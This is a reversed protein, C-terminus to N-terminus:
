SPTSARMRLLTAPAVTLDKAGRLALHGTARRVEFSQVHRHEDGAAHPMEGFRIKFTVEERSDDNLDFRFAYLGERRFTDPSGAGADPNVTLAMAVTGPTGRFFYFDCLNIPPDERATPTDFHHSM